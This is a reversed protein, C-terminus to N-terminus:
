QRLFGTRFYLNIFTLNLYRFTGHVGMSLSLVQSFEGTEADLFHSVRASASVPSNEFTGDSDM